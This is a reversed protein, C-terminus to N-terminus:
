SRGKGNGSQNAHPTPIFYDCCFLLFHISTNVFMELKRGLNESKDEPLVRYLDDYTIAKKYGLKM